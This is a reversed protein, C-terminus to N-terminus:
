FNIGFVRGSQWAVVIKHWRFLGFKSAWGTTNNVKDMAQGDTLFIELKKKQEITKKIFHYTSKLWVATKCKNWNKPLYTQFCTSRLAILKSDYRAQTKVYLRVSFINQIPRWAGLFGKIVIHAYLKLWFKVRFCLSCFCVSNVVTLHWLINTTKINLPFLSNGSDNILLCVFCIVVLRIM